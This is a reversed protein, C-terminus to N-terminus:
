LTGTATTTPGNYFGDDYFADVQVSDGSQGAIAFEPSTTTVTSTFYQTNNKTPDTFNTFNVRTNPGSGAPNTWHPVCHRSFTTGSITLTMSQPQVTPAHSDTTLIQKWTGSNMIYLKYVSQFVSGTYYYPNKALGFGGFAVWSGSHMVWANFGSQYQFAM